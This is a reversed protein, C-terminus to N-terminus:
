RELGMSPISYMNGRQQTSKQSKSRAQNVIELTSYYSGNSIYHLYNSSSITGFSGSVELTRYSDGSGPAKYIVGYTTQHEGDYITSASLETTGPNTWNGWLTKYIRDIFLAGQLEYTVDFWTETDWKHDNPETYPETHNYTASTFYISVPTDYVLKYEQPESRFYSMYDYTGSPNKIKKYVGLKINKEAYYNYSQIEDFENKNVNFDLEIEDTKKANKYQSPHYEYYEGMNSHICEYVGWEEVDELSEISATVTYQFHVFGYGNNDSSYFTKNRTFSDISGDIVEFKVENGYKLYGEDVQGRNNKIRSSELFPRLYYTGVGAFKPLSFMMYLTSTTNHEMNICTGKSKYTYLRSTPSASKRAVVYASVLNRTRESITRDYMNVLYDSLKDANAITTYVNTEGNESRVEDIKIDCPGFLAQRQKSMHQSQIGNIEWQIVAVVAGVPLSLFKSLASTTIETVGAVALDQLFKWYDMNDLDSLLTNGTLIKDIVGITGDIVGRTSIGTSYINKPFGDEECTGDELIRTFYISDNSYSAYYTKESNGVSIINDEEDKEIIFACNASNGNKNILYTTIKTTTDTHSVIYNDNIVLGCDWGQLDDSSISMIKDQFQEKENIINSEQCSFLLCVFFLVSLIRKM